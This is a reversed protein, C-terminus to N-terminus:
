SVWWFIDSDLHLGKSAFLLADPRHVTLAAELWNQPNLIPTHTHQAERVGMNREKVRCHCRRNGNTVSEDTAGPSVIRVRILAAIVELNCFAVPELSRSYNGMEAVRM